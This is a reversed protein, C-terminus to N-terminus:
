VRKAGVYTSAYWSDSLSSIKVVDGTHPAHIFQGGGIYIGMHGLGDFFVLDGAELQDRPVYTGVTNYQMAANHPLSVGVQGYVYMAFGSCDFGSPSAGGWVYPTGLYQMAIGVVGGYQSPAVPASYVSSSDSPSSYQLAQPQSAEARTAALRARAQAELAAQRRAEAAEMQKIEDQISSLLQRRESLKGEIWQKQSARDAVVQAQRARDSRLKAGRTQVEGRFRRVEALVRSDQGGVRQAMDLRDLLDDLSKAGLIVEVAGGSDGNIYLARLRKAIHIQAVGLSQKAIVLHRGNTKLDADIQSLQINALNYSEIAHSLQSDLDQVQALVAQAQQRKSGISPDATASGSTFVLMAVATTALVLAVAQRM